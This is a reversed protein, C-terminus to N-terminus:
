WNWIGDANWRSPLPPLLGLRALFNGTLSRGNQSFGGAERCKKDPEYSLKRAEGARAARYTKKDPDACGPSVYTRNQDDLLVMAHDPLEQTPVIFFGALLTFFLIIVFFRITPLM